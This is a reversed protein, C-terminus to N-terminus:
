QDSFPKPEFGLPSKLTANKHTSLSAALRPQSYILEQPNPLEFRGRGVMYLYLETPLAGARIRHSTM